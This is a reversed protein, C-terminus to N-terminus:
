VEYSDEVFYFMYVFLMMEIYYYALTFLMLQYGTPWGHKSRHLDNLGLTKGPYEKCINVGSAQIIYRRLLGRLERGFSKSPLLYNGLYNVMRCAPLLHSTDPSCFVNKYNTKGCVADALPVTKRCNALLSELNRNVMAIRQPSCKFGSRTIMDYEDDPMQLYTFPHTALYIITTPVKTLLSRFDEPVRTWLPWYYANIFHRARYTVSSERVDMDPRAHMLAIILLFVTIGFLIFVKTAAAAM